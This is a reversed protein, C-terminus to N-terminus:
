NPARVGVCARNAAKWRGNGASEGGKLRVPAGSLAALRRKAILLSAFGPLLAVREKDKRLGRCRAKGHGIERKVKSSRTSQKRGAELSSRRVQAAQNLSERAGDTMRM